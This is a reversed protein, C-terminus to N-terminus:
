GSRCQGPFDGVLIIHIGAEDAIKAFPYDYATISTVKEGKQKMKYLTNLTIHNPM